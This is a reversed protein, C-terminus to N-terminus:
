PEGYRRLPGAQETPHVAGVMAEYTTRTRLGASAVFAPHALMARLVATISTDSAAYTSTMAAVLAPDPADAVFRQAIRTCVAAATAPHHALYDLYGAIVANGDDKKGNPHSWGMVQVPGVYHQGPNYAATGDKAVTLGTLVLASNHVDTETYAGTGVTHLELLERGLNENPDGGRSSDAALFRLMAPDRTSAALLDSYRCLALARLTLDRQGLVDLVNGASNAVHLRDWWLEVVREYLQKTSYIARALTALQLQTVAAPSAPPVAM